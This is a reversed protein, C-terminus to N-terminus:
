NILRIASIIELLILQIVKNIKIQFLNLSSVAVIIQFELVYIKKASSVLDTEVLSPNAAQGERHGWAGWGALAGGVQRCSCCGQM